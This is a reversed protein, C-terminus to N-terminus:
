GSPAAFGRWPVGRVRAVCAPWDFEEDSATAEPWPPIPTPDCDSTTSLWARPDAEDAIAGGSVLLLSVQM